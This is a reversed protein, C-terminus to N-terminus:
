HPPKLLNESSIEPDGISVLRDRLDNLALRTEQFREALLTFIGDL